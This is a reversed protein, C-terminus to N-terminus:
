ELASAAKRPDCSPVEKHADIAQDLATLRWDDGDTEWLHPRIEDLLKQREDPSEGVRIIAKLLSRRRPPSSLFVGRVKLLLDKM